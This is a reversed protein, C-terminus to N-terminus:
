GWIPLGLIASTAIILYAVRRFLVEATPDFLRAGIVNAIINPIGALLGLLAIKWVFLELVAFTTILVVDFALLYLLFNARIVAIPLRSSMYLMIVPPGPVGAFGGMFGGLGGTAVTMPRALVGKYRWGSMVLVLLVMVCISVVWGFFTTDMYSLCFVGVPITLIAGLMLRGVDRPAGDRWAAPLNPIPGVLEAMMMFIVAEVPSLVSAAVPMIIMGSGFGAFGRVLGAALVGLTLWILGSTDVGGSLAELM